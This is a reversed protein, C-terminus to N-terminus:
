GAMRQARLAVRAMMRLMGDSAQPADFVMDAAQERCQLLMRGNQPELELDAFFSLLLRITQVIRHYHQPREGRLRLFFPALNAGDEKLYRSDNVSWGQRMRCTAATNHFQHVVCQRLLGLITSATTNGQESEAIVQAERHRAGLSRWQAPAPFSRDSFRYKEETSILVDGAAYSRRIAYDNEGLHIGQAPIPFVSLIQGSCAQRRGQIRNVAKVTHCGALAHDHHHRGVAEPLDKGGKDGM